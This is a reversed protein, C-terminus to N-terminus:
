TQKLKAVRAWTERNFIRENEPSMEHASYYYMLHDMPLSFAKDLNDLYNRLDEDRHRQGELLFFTKKGAAKLLPYFREHAEFITTKMHHMQHDVTRIHGDSGLYDIHKTQAFWEALHLNSSEAFISITTEPKLEKCFRSMQDLFQFVVKEQAPRPEDWIIGDVEMEEVLIRLYKEFHKKVGTHVPNSFALDRYDKREYWTDQNQVSWKSFGDLWGATLGAWRNPVVHVKLGHKKALQIFNKVRQQHWNQTQEEQICFTTVDTGISVMKELDYEIHKALLSHNHPAYYYCNVLPINKGKGSLYQPVKTNESYAKGYRASLGGALIIGNKIFDRRKIM